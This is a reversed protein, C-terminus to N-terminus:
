LVHDLYKQEIELTEGEKCVELLLWIFGENQSHNNWAIQLPQNHPHKNRSLFSIHEDEIRHQLDVSSGIYIPNRIFNQSNYKQFYWILNLRVQILGM